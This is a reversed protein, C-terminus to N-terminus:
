RQPPTQPARPTRSARDARYARGTMAGLVAACLTYAVAPVARRQAANAGALLVFALALVAYIM